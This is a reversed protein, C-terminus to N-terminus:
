AREEMLKRLADALDHWNATMIAQTGNWGDIRDYTNLASWGAKEAETM